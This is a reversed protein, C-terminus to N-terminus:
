RLGVDLKETVLQSNVVMGEPTTTFYQKDDTQSLFALTVLAASQLTQRINNRNSNHIEKLGTNYNLDKVREFYDQEYEPKWSQKMALAPDVLDRRIKQLYGNLMYPNLIYMFHDSSIYITDLSLKSHFDLRHEMDMVAILLNTFVFWGYNDKNVPTLVQSYDRLNVGNIQTFAQKTGKFQVGQRGQNLKIFTYWTPQSLIKEM